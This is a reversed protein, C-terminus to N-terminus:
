DLSYYAREALAESFTTVPEGTNPERVEVEVKGKIPPSLGDASIQWEVDYVGPPAARLSFKATDRYVHQNIHGVQFSIM